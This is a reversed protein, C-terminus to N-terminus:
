PDPTNSSGVGGQAVWGDADADSHDPLYQYFIREDEAFFWADEPIDSTPRNAKTDSLIVKNQIDRWNHRLDKDYREARYEPFKTNIYAM